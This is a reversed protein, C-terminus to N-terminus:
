RHKNGVAYSRLLFITYSVQWGVMQSSVGLCLVSALRWRAPLQGRDKAQLWESCGVADGGGVLVFFINLEVGSQNVWRYGNYTAMSVRSFYSAVSRPAQLLLVPIRSPTLAACRRISCKNFAFQRFVSPATERRKKMPMRWPSCRYKRCDVSGTKSRTTM